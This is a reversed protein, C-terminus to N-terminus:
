GPKPVPPDFLVPNGDPDVVMFSAPGSGAQDAERALTPGQAKLQRQRERVGTCSGLQQANSGWGPNFSLKKKEFMGQLLGVVHSGSKLILWNQAADGAFVTFGRKEYFHQRRDLM